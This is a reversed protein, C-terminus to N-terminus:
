VRQYQPRSGHHMEARAWKNYVSQRQKPSIKINEYIKYRLDKFTAAQKPTKSRKRWNNHLFKKEWDNIIKQKHAYDIVASNIRGDRLAPFIRKLSEFEDSVQNICCNGIELITGNVENKVVCVECIPYHGCECTRAEEFDAYWVYLM